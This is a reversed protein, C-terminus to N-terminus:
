KLNLHSKVRWKPRIIEKWNNSRKIKKCRHVRTSSFNEEICIISEGIFGFQEDTVSSNRRREVHNPKVHSSVTCHVGMLFSVTNQLKMSNERTRVITERSRNSGTNINSWKQKIVELKQSMPNKGSTSVRKRDMTKLYIACNKVSDFWM